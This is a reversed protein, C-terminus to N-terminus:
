VRFSVLNTRLVLHTQPGSYTCFQDPVKKQFCPVIYKLAATFTKTLNSCRTSNNNASSAVNNHPMSAAMDAYCQPEEVSSSLGVESEKQRRISGLAM